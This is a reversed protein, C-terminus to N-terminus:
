IYEIKFQVKYRALKINKVAKAAYVAKPTYSSAILIGRINKHGQERLYEMYAQLQGVAKEDAQGAKLEIVVPTGSRDRALIDLRGIGPLDKQREVLRLGEEVVDLNRSLYDELDRELSLSYGVEELGRLDVEGTGAEWSDELSDEGPRALRFRSSSVQILFARKYLSPWRTPAHRNNISLGLLHMRFSNDSYPCDPYKGRIYRIVDAVSFVRGDRGLSLAAERVLEYVSRHYRRGPLGFRWMVNGVGLVFLSLVSVCCSLALGFM